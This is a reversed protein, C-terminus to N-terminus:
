ALASAIIKESEADLHVFEASVGDPRVETVRCFASILQADKMPAFQVHLTAKPEISKQTAIFLGARSLSTAYDVDVADDVSAQHQVLFRM